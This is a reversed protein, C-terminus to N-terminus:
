TCMCLCIHPNVHFMVKQLCNVLQHNGIPKFAKSECLNKEYTLTENCQYYTHICTHIYTHIYTNPNACIRRTPLRRTASIIHIYTHIYTYIYTYAYAPTYTYTDTHIFFMSANCEHRTLTHTYIRTHM